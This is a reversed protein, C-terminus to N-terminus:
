AHFQGILSECVNSVCIAILYSTSVLNNMTSRWSKSGFMQRSACSTFTAGVDTASSPTNLQWSLNRANAADGSM